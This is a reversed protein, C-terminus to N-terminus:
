RCTGASIDLILNQFVFALLTLVINQEMLGYFSINFGNYIGYVVIYISIFYSLGSTVVFQTLWFSKQINGLKM